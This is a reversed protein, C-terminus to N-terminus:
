SVRSGGNLYGAMSYVIVGSFSRLEGDSKEFSIINKRPLWFQTRLVPVASLRGGFPRKAANGLPCVLDSQEMRRHKDFLDGAFAIERKRTM